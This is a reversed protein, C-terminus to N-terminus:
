FPVNDFDTNPKMQEEKHEQSTFVDVEEGYQNECMFKVGNRLRFSVPENMFTPKGGTETEKVKKIHIDTYMWRSEHQTLRHIVIFDDARNVWKGGGEIDSATPPKPHGAYEHEKPYEKRLAETNAHANVFLTKNHKRCFIRFESAVRYDLEHANGKFSSPRVLSNYPDILCCDFENLNKEFTTLLDEYSYL